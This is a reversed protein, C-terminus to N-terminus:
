IFYIEPLIGLEKLALLWHYIYYGRRKGIEVTEGATTGKM